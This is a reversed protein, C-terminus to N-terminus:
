DPYVVLPNRVSEIEKYVESELIEKRMERWPIDNKEATSILVQRAGLKLLASLPKISLLTGVLRSLPTEGAWKPRELKGEEYAVAMKVVLVSDARRSKTRRGHGIEITKSTSLVSFNHSSAFLAM